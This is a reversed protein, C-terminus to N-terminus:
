LGGTFSSLTNVFLKLSNYYPWCSLACYCHTSVWRPLLPDLFEAKDGESSLYSNALCSLCFFFSSIANWTHPIAQANPVCIHGHFLPFGCYTKIASPLNPMLSHFYGNSKYRFQDSCRSCGPRFSVKRGERGRSDFPSYGPGM